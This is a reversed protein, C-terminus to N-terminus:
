AARLFTDEYFSDLAGNERMQTYLQLDQLTDVELWGNSVPVSQMHWESDILYQLLSTMFMKDFSQGDYIAAPDMSDYVDLLTPIAAAQFKILGIYQAQIDALSEPKKGLELIRGDPSLKLTEADQLPNPMRASWYRQWAEDVVVCAPASCALLAQLVRPEYVIDGYSVVLDEGCTMLHRATFLTAVMNTEAFRENLVVDYGLAEIQEARYGGAVTIDDLGAQRIAAVQRALLSRGDLEVLCKPRDDTLPALRTGQGAALILVKTM